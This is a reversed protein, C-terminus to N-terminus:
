LPHSWQNNCAISAGAHPWLSSEAPLASAARASSGAQNEGGVDPSGCVTKVGTRFQAGEIVEKPVTHM